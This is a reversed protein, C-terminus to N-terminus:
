RTLPTWATVDGLRACSVVNWVKEHVEEMTWSDLKSVGTRAVCAHCGEMDFNCDWPCNQHACTSAQNKRHLLFCSLCLFRRYFILFRSGSSAESCTLWWILSASPWAVINQQRIAVLKRKVAFCCASIATKMHKSPLGISFHLHLGQCLVELVPLGKTEVGKEEEASWSKSTRIMHEINRCTYIYVSM